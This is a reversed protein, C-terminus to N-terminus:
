TAMMERCFGNKTITINEGLIAVSMENLSAEFNSKYSMETWAHHLKEAIDLLRNSDKYGECSTLKEVADKHADDVVWTFTKQSFSAILEEFADVGEEYYHSQIIEDTDKYGRCKSLYELGETIYNLEMQKKGYLYYCELVMTSADKYGGAKLFQEAASLYDGGNLAISATNYHSKQTILKMDAFLEWNLSNFMSCVTYNSVKDVYENEEM